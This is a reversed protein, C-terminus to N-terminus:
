QNKENKYLYYKMKDFYFQFNAKELDFFGMLEACMFNINVMYFDMRKKYRKNDNKKEYYNYLKECHQFMKEYEMIVNKNDIGKTKKDEESRHGFLPKYTELIIKYIKFNIEKQKKEIEEEFKYYKDWVDIEEKNIENNNNSNNNNQNNSSNNNNTATNNIKNNNSNNGNTSTNNTKNNTQNNNKDTSNTIKQSTNNTNNQNQNKETNPEEEDEESELEEEKKVPPRSRDILTFEMEYIKGNPTKIDQIYLILTNIKLKKNFNQKYNFIINKLQKMFILEAFTKDKEQPKFILIHLQTVIIYKEETKKGMEFIQNVRYLKIM